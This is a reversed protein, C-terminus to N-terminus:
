RVGISSWVTKLRWLDDAGLYGLRADRSTRDDNTAERFLKPMTLNDLKIIAYVYLFVAILMLPISVPPWQPIGETQWLRAIQAGLLTIAFGALFTSTQFESRIKAQLQEGIAEIRTPFEDLSANEGQNRDGTAERPHWTRIGV